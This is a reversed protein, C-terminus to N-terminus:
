ASSAGVAIIFSIAIRPQGGTAVVAGAAGDIIAPLADQARGSLFRAVAASGRTESSAGM